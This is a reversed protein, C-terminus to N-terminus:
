QAASLLTLMKLLRRAAKGRHSVEDKAEPTVQSFVKGLSPLWFVPDYGFGTAGPQPATEVLGYCNGEAVLSARDPQALVLCCVYHASRREMPIGELCQLLYLLRGHDDLYPAGFRASRVGPAGALIDVCIGSDDALVPMRYAQLYALAKTNANAEFTDGHEPVDLAALGLDSPLVLDIPSGAFIRRFEVAKHSNNSALLVRM